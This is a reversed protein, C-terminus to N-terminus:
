WFFTIASFSVLCFDRGVSGSWETVRNIIEVTDRLRAQTAKSKLRVAKSVSDRSLGTVEALDSETIHLEKALAGSAVLGDNGIVTHLFDVSM